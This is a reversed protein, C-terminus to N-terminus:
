LEQGKDAEDLTFELVRGRYFNLAEAEAAKKDTRVSEIYATGDYGGIWAVVYVKRGDSM